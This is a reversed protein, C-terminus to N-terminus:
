QLFFFGSYVVIYSISIWNEMSKKKLISATVSINGMRHWSSKAKLTMHMRKASHIKLEKWYLMIKESLLTLTAETLCLACPTQLKAILNEQSGSGTSLFRKQSSNIGLRAKKSHSRFSISKYQPETMKDATDKSALRRSSHRDKSYSELCYQLNIITDVKWDAPCLSFTFYQAPRLM